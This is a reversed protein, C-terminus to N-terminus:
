PRISLVSVQVLKLMINPFPSQISAGFLLISIYSSALVECKLSHPIVGGGQIGFVSNVYIIYFILVCKGAFPKAPFRGGGGLGLASNM